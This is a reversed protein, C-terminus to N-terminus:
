EETINQTVIPLLEKWTSEFLPQLLNDDWKDAFFPHYFYTLAQMITMGRQNRFTDWAMILEVARAFQVVRSNILNTSDGLRREYYEMLEPQEQYAAQRRLVLEWLWDHLTTVRDQEPARSAEELMPDDVSDLWVDNMKEFLADKSSFHKYLAAPTIDLARAVDTLRAKEYGKEALIRRAEKFIRDTTVKAM